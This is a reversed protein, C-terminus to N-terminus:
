WYLFALERHCPSPENKLIAQPFFDSWRKTAAGIEASWNGSRKVPRFHPRQEWLDLADDECTWSALWITSSIINSAFTDTASAMAWWKGEHLRSRLCGTRTKIPQIKLQPGVGRNICNSLANSQRKTSALKNLQLVVMKMTVCVCICMDIVQLYTGAGRWNSGMKCAAAATPKVRSTEVDFTRLQNHHDTHIHFTIATKVRSTEM